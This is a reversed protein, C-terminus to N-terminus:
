KNWIGKAKQKIILKCQYCHVMSMLAFCTAMGGVVGEVGHRHGGMIMMIIFLLTSFVSTYIQVHIKNLGNLLYTACNNLNFFCIYILTVLSISWPVTVLQGVWIHYFVKSLLLMLVGILAMIGCTKLTRIFTRQIWKMNNKVFADTYANWIPSLIIVLAAAILHFYRYAINYTTVSSPGCFQAIFINACGFICLGVTIQILFFGAGKTVVRIAINKDLYRFSPRLESHRVFLPIAAIVFVLVPSITLVAVVYLMNGKTYLTLTYIIVVSLVSGLAVILDNIAYQQLSMFVVGVNKVVILVLTMVIALVMSLLLDHNSLINTNFVINLNLLSVCGIAIVCLVLAIFFLIIFTTSVYKRALEYDGLSISEALYNRMGNGLGVDFFTFWYLISSMTLWIGYTENDIYEITIPVIIFTCLLGVCKFITSLFINRAVIRNRSDKSRLTKLLTGIDM